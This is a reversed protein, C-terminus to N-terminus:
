SYAFRSAGGGRGGGERRGIKSQNCLGFRTLKATPLACVYLYVLQPCYMLTFILKRPPHPIYREFGGQTTTTKNGM